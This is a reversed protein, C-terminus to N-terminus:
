WPPSRDDPLQCDILRVIAWRRPIAHILGQGLAVAAMVMVGTTGEIGSDTNQGHVQMLTAWNLGVCM